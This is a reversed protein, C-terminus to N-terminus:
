PEPMPEDTAARIMSLKSRANWAARWAPDLRLVAPEIVITEAGSAAPDHALYADPIRHRPGSARGIKIFKRTLGFFWLLVFASGHIDVTGHHHADVLKDVAKPSSLIRLAQGSSGIRVACDAVAAHGSYTTARRLQGDFVWHRAVRDGASMEFTLTRTIQSRVSPMFRSGRAICQGLFWLLLRMAANSM